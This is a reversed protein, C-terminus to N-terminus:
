ESLEDLIGELTPGMKEWLHNPEVTVRGNMVAAEQERARRRVETRVEGAAINRATRHLWGSLAPRSTLHNAGRALAIFVRQTVDQALAADCVIRLAVSYVLDVHRSVLESFASESRGDVYDMFLDSDSPNM